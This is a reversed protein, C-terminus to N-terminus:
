ARLDEDSINEGREIKELIARDTTVLLSEYRSAKYDIAFTNSNSKVLAQGRRFNTITERESDSLEFIRQIIKSERPEIKYLFKLCSNNIIAEGYAGDNLAFFDKVDQTAAIAAGGYGRVLKFIEKVFNAALENESILKWAEDIAIIKKKTKNERAKDWIYELAIYMGVPKLEDSLDSMDFVVYKNDIDVNTQGNFTSASGHVYRNLINALRETLPNNRLENYLDELIPMEKFVPYKVQKGDIIRYEYHDLLSTNDRTIGKKQYTNIIAEDLLQREELNMDSLILSFFTSLSEIKQNLLIVSRRRGKLSFVSDSSNNKEEENKIDEAYSLNPRIEMINIRHTSGSSINVFTGGIARTAPLFEDSKEPIIIFVQTGRLRYRMCLTQLTFTKGSGSSGFIVMNANSYKNTNFNDSVVMSSNDQSIGLLVGDNDSVELSSFPYLSALGNTTINRKGKNFIKDPLWGCIQYAKLCDEMKYPLEIAEMDLGNLQERIAVQKRVLMDPDKDSITIMTAFYFFEEGGALANKIYMSSQISNVLEEMNEGESNSHNVRARNIRERQRVRNKMLQTPKKEVYIDVDLGECYNFLFSLWSGYVQEPYNASPILLFTYYTDDVVCYDREFHVQNPACLYNYYGKAELIKEEDNNYYAVLKNRTSHYRYWLRDDGKQAIRNITELAFDYENNHEIVENGCTRLFKEATHRARRLYTVIDYENSVPTLDTEVFELILYFHREVGERNGISRVLNIYDQQYGKIYKNKTEKSFDDELRKIYNNVNTRTSITKFRFRIPAVRTYSAFANIIRNKDEASKYSFNIPDIELVTIYKGNETLIVEDLMKQVGVIDNTNEM